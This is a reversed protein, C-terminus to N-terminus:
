DADRRFIMKVTVDRGPGMGVTTFVV